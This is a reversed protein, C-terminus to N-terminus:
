VEMNLKIIFYVTAFGENPARGRNIVTNDGDLLSITSPGGKYQNFTISASDINGLNITRSGNGEILSHHGDVILDLRWTGGSEIKIKFDSKTNSKSSDNESIFAPITIAGIICIAVLIVIVKKNM